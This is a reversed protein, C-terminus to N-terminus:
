GKQEDVTVCNIWKDVEEDFNKGYPLKGFKTALRKVEKLIYYKFRYEKEIKRTHEVNKYPVDRLFAYALQAARAAERVELRRHTNLRLWDGTLKCVAMKQEVSREDPPMHYLKNHKIKDEEFRIFKAEQALEKIRVRM